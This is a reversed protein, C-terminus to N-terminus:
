AHSIIEFKFNKKKLEEKRNLIGLDIKIPCYKSNIRCVISKYGKPPKVMAAYHKVWRWTFLAEKNAYCWYKECSLLGIKRLEKKTLKKKSKEFFQKKYLQKIKRKLPMLEPVNIKYMYAYWLRVDSNSWYMSFSSECMGLINEPNTESIALICYFKKNM